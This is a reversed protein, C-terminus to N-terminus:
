NRKRYFYYGNRTCVEFSDHLGPLSESGGLILVGGPNLVARVKKLTKLKNAQNFYIMINRLFVLDFSGSLPEDLLNLKQFSVRDRIQSILMYKDEKKEFYRQRHLADVGRSVEFETYSASKAKAICRGSIDVGKIMVSSFINPYIDKLLMAVSYAEQGTSSGASLISILKDKQLITEFFNDGLAKFLKEDRFFSTESTIIQDIVAEELKKHLGQKLNVQLEHFNQFNFRELIPSLRSEILYDKAAEISIGSIKEIASKLSLFDAM